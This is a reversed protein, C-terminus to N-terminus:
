KENERQFLIKKRDGSKLMMAIHEVLTGLERGSHYPYVRRIYGSHDGMVFATDAMRYVESEDLYPQLSGVFSVNPNKDSFLKFPIEPVLASDNRQLIFYVDDRNRFQDYVSEIGSINSTDIKAYIFIAKNFDIEEGYTDILADKNVPIINSLLSLRDKRYTSGIKLFVYSGLPLIILFFMLGIVSKQRSTLM